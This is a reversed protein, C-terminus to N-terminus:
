DERIAEAEENLEALDEPTARACAWALTFVALEIKFLLGDANIVVDKQHEPEGHYLYDIIDEVIDKFDALLHEIQNPCKQGFVLGTLQIAGYLEFVHSVLVGSLDEPARNARHDEWAMVLGMLSSVEELFSNVRKPVEFDQSLPGSMCTVSM